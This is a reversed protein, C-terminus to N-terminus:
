RTRRDAAGGVRLERLLMAPGARDPLAALVRLLDDESVALGASLTMPDVGVRELERLLHAFREMHSM